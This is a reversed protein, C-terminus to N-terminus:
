NILQFSNLYEDMEENLSHQKTTFVQIFYFRNEAVIMKSKVVNQGQDFEMRSLHTPYEYDSQQVQYLLKADMGARSEELSQTFLDAVMETSDHHLTEKPYQIYNILYLYNPDEIPPECYYTFVEMDGIETEMNAYKEEYLGPQRVSFQAEINTYVVDDQQPGHCLFLLLIIFTPMLELRFSSM